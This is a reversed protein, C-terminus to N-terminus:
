EAVEWLIARRGSPLVSKEGSDRVLGLAVLESRRTRITSAEPIPAGSILCRMGYNDVLDRDHMRGHMRILEYIARQIQTISDDDISAAAEHSTIPDTLRARPM